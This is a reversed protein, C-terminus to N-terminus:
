TVNRIYFEPMSLLLQDFNRESVPRSFLYGQVHDCSLELLTEAQQESEVGSTTVAFGLGHALMILSEVIAYNKRSSGERPLFSRDIKMNDIQMTELSRLSSFGTGFDDLCIKCGLQRLTNIIERAREPERSITDETIDLLLRGAAVDHLTVARLITEALEEHMFQRYSLNISLMLDQGMAAWEKIKKCAANIVINGIAIIQGTMEATPLVYVPALRGRTPHNMRLLAEAGIIKKTRAHIIPQYFLEFANEDLAAQIEQESVLNAAYKAANEQKYSPLPFINVAQRASDSPEEELQMAKTESQEKVLGLSLIIPTKKDKIFCQNWNIIVSGGDPKATASEHGWVFGESIVRKIQEKDMRPLIDDNLFSYLKKGLLDSPKCNFFSYFFDNAYELEFEINTLLVFFGPMQTLADFVRAKQQIEKSTPWEV